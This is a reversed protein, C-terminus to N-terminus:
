NYLNLNANRRVILLMFRFLFLYQVLQGVLFSLIIYGGCSIGLPIVIHTMMPRYCMSLM